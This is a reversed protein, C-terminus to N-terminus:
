RGFVPLRRVHVRRRDAARVGEAPRRGDAGRRHAPDEAAPRAAAQGDLHRRVAWLRRDRSSVARRERHPQVHAVRWTCRRARVIRRRRHVAEDEPRPRAREGGAGRRDDASRRRDAEACHGVPEAARGAGEAPLRRAGAVHHGGRSRRTGQRSRAIARSQLPDHRADDLQRCVASRGHRAPRRRHQRAHGAADARRLARQLDSPSAVPVIERVRTPNLQSHIDNVLVGTEATRTQLAFVGSAKLFERRSVAM